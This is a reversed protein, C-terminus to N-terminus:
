INGINNIGEFYNRIRRRKTRLKKLQIETEPLLKEHIETKAIEYSNQLESSSHNINKGPIIIEKLLTESIVWDKDIYISRKHNLIVKNHIVRDATIFISNEKLLHKLIEEDPLGPYTDKIHVIEALKSDALKLYDLVKKFQKSSISEDIIIM